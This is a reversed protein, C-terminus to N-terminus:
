CDKLVVYSMYESATWVIENPLKVAEAEERTEFFKWNRGIGVAFNTHRLGTLESM